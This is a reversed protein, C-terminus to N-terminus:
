FVTHQSKTQTGRRAPEPAAEGRGGRGKPAARKKLHHPEAALILPFSFPLRRAPFLLGKFCPRNNGAVGAATKRGGILPAPPPRRAGDSLFLLVLFSHIDNQAFRLIEIDRGRHSLFFCRPAPAAIASLFLLVLLFFFVGPVGIM